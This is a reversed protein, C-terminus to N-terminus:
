TTYETGDSTDDDGPSHVAGGAQHSGSILRIRNSGSRNATDGHGAAFSIDPTRQNADQDHLADSVPHIQQSNRGIELHHHDAGDNDYRNGHVTDPPKSLGSSLVNGSSAHTPPLSSVYPTRLLMGEHMGEPCPRLM